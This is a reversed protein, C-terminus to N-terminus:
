CFDEPDFKCYFEDMFDEIRDRSYESVPFMDRRAWVTIAVHEDEMDPYPTLVLLKDRNDEVFDELDDIIAQDTTDYWIITGGHEM